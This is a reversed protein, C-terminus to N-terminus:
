NETRNGQGTHVSCWFASSELREFIRGTGYELEKHNNSSWNNNIWVPVILQRAPLEYHNTSIVKKKKKKKYKTNLKNIILSFTLLVLFLEYM